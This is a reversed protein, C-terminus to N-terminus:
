APGRYLDILREVEQRVREKGQLLIDEKVRAGVVLQPNTQPSIHNIAETVGQLFASKFVTGVNFKAVGLQIARHVAEDPFGTGGHIVLPISVAQHIRALLDLDIDAKGEVLIHVNGVSVALADVGTRAVFEAAKQPDTLSPAGEEYGESHGESEAEPLMGLEGEAEAGAAHAAEVVQRTLRVNEEFPLNSFGMMVVNFGCKLGRQVQDLTQAENLIFAAPVKAREVAVRGLAALCELGGGDFWAQDMMMGGFGVIVPSHRNEAAEIVAELSYQDWSEFYGVAYGGRLADQLIEKMPVLPM